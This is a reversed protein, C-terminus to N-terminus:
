NLFSGAITQISLAAVMIFLGVLGWLIHQAGKSRAEENGSNIIFEVVGYLFIVLAFGFLLKIAPTVLVTIISKLIDHM